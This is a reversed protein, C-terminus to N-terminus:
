CFSFANADDQYNPIICPMSGANGIHTDQPANVTAYWDTSTRGNQTATTQIIGPPIPFHQPASCGVSSGTGPFECGLSALMMKQWIPAAGTIGDIHYMGDAENSNGVWVVGTYQTTFGAGWDNTLNDTTGTKAAAPYDIGPNNQYQCQAQTATYLRLPSCIGFAAARTKNDTIVTTTLFAAQPEFVQTGQPPTYNYISNGQSDSISQIANIPIDRGYNAIVTYAHAVDIPRMELAGLAMSLGPTGKYQTIGFRALASLMNDVGVFSLTKVAPIDLSHQLAERVYIDGAFVGRYADLPKYVGDQQYNYIGSKGVNPFITPLDSIPMSPYWGMEFATTYMMPKFTSGIQRFGQTAVDFQGAVPAGFPTKTANFNWSGLLVRLDGTSQQILVAASDTANDNRIYGGYDDMDNGFLHQYMYQQTKQQLPLDLTTYVSLGSRSINIQGSGIMEALQQLAYDVFNPALDLAPSAPSLFHAGASEQEAAIAQAVTIYGMQIMGQLVLKQRALTNQLGNATLPNYINPNDPIGALFSAQALNLHQSATLGGANSQTSCDTNVGQADTYNFYEHAAADIGYIDPGYPITNLYMEMIQQKSYLGTETLGVALIAEQMKRSYTIQSNLITNKLLQQTITSAGQVISGSQEDAALAGMIRHIDIGPNTWFTRDEIAVTAEQLIQPMQYYCVSHKVGYIDSQYILQGHMDYMRISDTGTSQAYISELAIQQQQFYVISYEAGAAIFIVVAAVCVSLLAMLTNRRLVAKEKIQYNRMRMRFVIYRRRRAFWQKYNAANKRSPFGTNWGHHLSSDSM